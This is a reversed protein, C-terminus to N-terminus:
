NPNEYTPAEKNHADFARNIAAMVGKRSVERDTEAGRVAELQAPSLDALRAAVEDVSGIIVAEADFGELDSPDSAPSVSGGSVDGGGATGAFRWVIGDAESLAPLLREDLPFNCGVPVTALVGNVNMYIPSHDSNIVYIEVTSM